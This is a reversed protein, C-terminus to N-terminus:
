WLYRGGIPIEFKSPTGASSEPSIIIGIWCFTLTSKWALLNEDPHEKVFFAWMDVIQILRRLEIQNRQICKTFNKVPETYRVDLYKKVAARPGWAPFDFPKDFTTASMLPPRSFFSIHVGHLKREELKASGPFRLNKERMIQYLLVEDNTRLLDTNPPIKVPYMKDYPIFHLGTLQNPNRLVNGFDSQHRAMFNLQYDLVDELLFIDIDGIYVYKTKLTPQVLFRVSNPLINRVVVPTYRVKGSLGRRLVSHYKRLVKYLWRLGFSYNRRRSRSEVHTCFASLARRLCSIKCKCLYFFTTWPPLITLFSKLSSSLRSFKKQRFILQQRNTLNFWAILIM